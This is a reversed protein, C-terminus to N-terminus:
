LFFGRQTYMSHSLLGAMSLWSYITCRPHRKNKRHHWYRWEQLYRMPFQLILIISFVIVELIALDIKGDSITDDSSNRSLLNAIM